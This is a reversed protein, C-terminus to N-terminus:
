IWHWRVMLTKQYKRWMKISQAAFKLCSRSRLQSATLHAICYRIYSACFGRSCTMFFESGSCCVITRPLGYYKTMVPFISKLTGNHTGATLLWNHLHPKPNLRLSVNGTFDHRLLPLSRWSARLFCADCLSRFSVSGLLSAFGRQPRHSCLHAPPPPPSFSPLSAPLPCANCLLPSM